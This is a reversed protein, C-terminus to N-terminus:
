EAWCQNMDKDIDLNELQHSEGLSISSHFSIVTVRDPSSNNNCDKAKGLFLVFKLGMMVVFSDVIQHYISESYHKPFLSSM